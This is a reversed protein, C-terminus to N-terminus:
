RKRKDWEVQKVGGPSWDPIKLKLAEAFLRDLM